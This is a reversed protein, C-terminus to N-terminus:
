ALVNLISIELAVFAGFGCAVINADCSSIGVATSAAAGSGSAAVGAVCCTDARDDATTLRKAILGCAAIGADCAIGDADVTPSMGAVDGAEGPLEALPRPKGGECLWLVLGTRM